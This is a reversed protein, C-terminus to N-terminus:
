YSLINNSNIVSLETQTDIRTNITRATVEFPQSINAIFSDSHNMNDATNTRLPDSHTTTIQTNFFSVNQPVNMTTVTPNVTSKETRIDINPRIPRIPTTVQTLASSLSNLQFIIDSEIITLNIFRPHENEKSIM